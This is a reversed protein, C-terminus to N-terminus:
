LIDVERCWSCIMRMIEIKQGDGEDYEYDMALDFSPNGFHYCRSEDDCITKIGKDVTSVPSYNDATEGTKDILIRIRNKDDDSVNEKFIPRNNLGWLFYCSKEGYRNTENKDLLYIGEIRECKDLDEDSLQWCETEDLAIIWIDLPVWIRYSSKEVLRRGTAKLARQCEKLLREFFMFRGISREDDADADLSELAANVFAETETLADIIIPTADSDIRNLMEGPIRPIVALAKGISELASIGLNQGHLRNLTNFIILFPAGIIEEKNERM